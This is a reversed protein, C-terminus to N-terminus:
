QLELEFEAGGMVRGCVQVEVRHEGAHYRRTSIPRFPVRKNLEIGQGAALTVDRLKFVKPTRSGDAKVHHVIFDVVLRQSTRATSRLVVSLELSEGLRVRDRDLTLSAKVRPPDAYGMLKWVRPHGQKVLTRLAHRVLRTRDPGADALWAEATDLVLEPRDKALDNLHNAVSRRVYESPDDKLADLLDFTPVADATFDRLRRGWPLRPRTGESVLRRVHEDPDDLWSSLVAFARQPDQELFPRVAFEASFIPTLARLTALADDFRDEGVLVVADFLPWAAFGRLPDEPDGADWAEPVSRLVSLAAAPEDPLFRVLARAVHDVREKLELGGLGRAAARRFAPADFAAHARQVAAALRAVAAKNLGDKMLAQTM